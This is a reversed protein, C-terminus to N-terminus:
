TDGNPHNRPGSVLTASLDSLDSLDTIKDISDTVEKSLREKQGNQGSNESSLSYRGRGVRLIEGDKVMKGLLIDTANRNRMEADDMIERTTLPQGATKLALIV